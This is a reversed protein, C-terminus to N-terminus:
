FVENSPLQSYLIGAQSDKKKLLSTGIWWAWNQGNTDTGSLNVIQGKVFYGVEATSRIISQTRKIAIMNYKEISSEM